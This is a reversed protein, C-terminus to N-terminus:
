TLGEDRGVGYWVGVYVLVKYVIFFSYARSPVMGYELIYKVNRYDSTQLIYKLIQVIQGIDVDVQSVHSRYLVLLKFIEIQQGKVCFVWPSINRILLQAQEALLCTLGSSKYKLHQHTPQVFKFCVFSM